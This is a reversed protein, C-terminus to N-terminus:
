LAVRTADGTHMGIQHGVHWGRCYECHYAIMSRFGRGQARLYRARRRADARTFRVKIPCADQPATM